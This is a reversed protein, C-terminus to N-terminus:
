KVEMAKKAACPWCFRDHGEVHRPSNMLDCEKAVSDVVPRLAGVQRELTAIRAADDVRGAEYVSLETRTQEHAEQEMALATQAAITQANYYRRAAVLEAKLRECERTISLALPAIWQVVLNSDTRYQDLVKGNRAQLQTLDEVRPREAALAQQAADREALLVRAEALAAVADDWKQCIVQEWGAPANLRFGGIEEELRALAPPLPPASATEDIPAVGYVPYPVDEPMPKSPTPADPM